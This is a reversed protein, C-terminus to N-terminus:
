LIQYEDIDYAWGLLFNHQKPTLRFYMGHKNTKRWGFFWRWWFPKAACFVICLAKMIENDELYLKCMIM